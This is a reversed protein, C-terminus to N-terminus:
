VLRPFTCVHPLDRARRRVQSAQLGVEVIESGPWGCMRQSQATHGGERVAKGMLIGKIKGKMRRGVVHTLVELMEEITLLLLELLGGSKSFTEESLAYLKFFADSENMLRIGIFSVFDGGIHPLPIAFEGVRDPSPINPVYLKCGCEGVRDTNQNREMEEAQQDGNGERPRERLGSGSGKWRSVERKERVGSYWHNEEMGAKRLVRVNVLHARAGWALM